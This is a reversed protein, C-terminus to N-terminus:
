QDFYMINRLQTKNPYAGVALAAAQAALGCMAGTIISKM